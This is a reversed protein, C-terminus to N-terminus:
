WQQNKGKGVLYQSNAATFTSIKTEHYDNVLICSIQMSIVKEHIEPIFNKLMSDFQKKMKVRIADDLILNDLLHDRYELWSSFMFPLEKPKFFDSSLQNVTNTGQVRKAIKNWTNPEIEQLFFLDHVATEHNLNSVRMKVIPVGYQYMYDYLKNYAWGNDHIAKWVDSIEWDYIPYMTYNGRSSRKAGWTRGKYTPYTTLGKFRAPSEQTRVGALSCVPYGFTVSAYNNLLEAFRDTHYINQHISDPEKDRIWEKGEEWCYLWEELPSTANFIKFPVQLWDLQIRPDHKIHRIYDITAQWEAEQDLFVVRLPLRQKEEAVILALNMLVTSDKGGSMNVVLHEFEDFLWRIRNLAEDWVSIPLYSVNKM